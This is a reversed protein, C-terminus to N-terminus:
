SKKKKGREKKIADKAPLVVKAQSQCDKKSTLNLNLLLFFSSVLNSKTRFRQSKPDM